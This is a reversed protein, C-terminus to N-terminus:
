ARVIEAYRVAERDLVEPGACEMVAETGGISGTVVAMSVARDIMEADTAKVVRFGRVIQGALAPNLTNAKHKM